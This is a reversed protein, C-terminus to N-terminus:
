VLKYIADHKKLTQGFIDFGVRRHGVQRLQQANMMAVWQPQMGDGDGDQQKHQCNGHM